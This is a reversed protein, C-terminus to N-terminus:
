YVYWLTAHACQKFRTEYLATSCQKEKESKSYRKADYLSMADHLQVWETGLIHKKLELWFGSNSLIIDSQIQIPELVVM